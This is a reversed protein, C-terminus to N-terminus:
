TGCYTVYSDTFSQPGPSTFHSPADAAFPDRVAALLEHFPEENGANAAALAEEVLHNRPLVLPNVADMADAIAAAQGSADSGSAALGLRPLWRASWADYAALDLVQGRVADAEGRLQRALGRFLLTYDLRAEKALALLDRLLERDRQDAEPGDLAGPDIGLKARMRELYAADFLDFFGEVTETARAIALNEDGSDGGDRSDGGDGSGDGLLPLLSEAFRSLNWAAIPPQNGFRYRGGTDISSFVTHEDYRELFACPGYDITEGSITMNDTNMVGHMFGVAMWDAVLRAQRAVVGRLLGLYDGPEVEPYHRAMAYDALQRLQEITGRTRVLEFTGVRLHSAAVRTLVAGPELGQRAVLDGTRVAALARTTPIGLAHMAEGLLYERLVPGLVAKGDGGRSFPTRGSGKLAVDRRVGDRDILEGLLLARGDGLVPSFQGFQHGAYAQALPQADAPLSSGGLVAIGEASHLYAPNLGLEEALEDNAAVLVPDISPTPQWPVYFGDLERAYSNDFGWANAAPATESVTASM